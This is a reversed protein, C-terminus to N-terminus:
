MSGANPARAAALCEFGADAFLIQGTMLVNEPAVCWALIAAADEPRGPYANKLPMMQGVAARNVPDGLVFAAAPTDVFGFAVVNLSIGAGAWAATPAASRCWQQLALKATGYLDLPAQYRDRPSADPKSAAAYAARAVTLAAEEDRSLCADVLGAIPPRLSGISSVAVARPAASDRLLPRLGELTAVTGFFNLAVSTEPSGSGANAVIADIKGGSIRAVGDALVARGGPTALDAVVDADRLDSTIVRDGRERLLHTTAAGIGSAAGTVVITRNM